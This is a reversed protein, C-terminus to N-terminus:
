RYEEQIKEFSVWFNEPTTGNLNAELVGLHTHWGASVNQRTAESDALKRHTLVLLVGGKAETLEFTVESDDHWTFTLLHPPDVEIVKGTFTHGAEMAKHMEPITGPLPSLESHLFHLTVMGGAFLEMEGRALWKGRKDSETVYSWVKEIASDFFREFCLVGPALIKGKGTM